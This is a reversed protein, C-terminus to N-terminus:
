DCLRMIEFKHATSLLEEVLMDRESASLRPFDSELNLSYDEAHPARNGRITVDDETLIVGYGAHRLKEFNIYM